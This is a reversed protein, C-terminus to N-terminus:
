NQVNGRADERFFNEFSKVVYSPVDKIEAGQKKLYAELSMLKGMTATYNAKTLFKSLEQAKSRQLKFHSVLMDAFYDRQGTEDYSNESQVLKPSKYILFKISDPEGTHRTGNYIKEYEFYCNCYGLQALEKLEDHAPQLVRQIVHRFAKYKKDINLIQRFYETSFTVTGKDLWASILLFIRQTYKNRTNYVTDKGLLHYGLEVSIFAKAIDEDMHINVYPNHVDEPIYVDCLNTVRKYKRGESSKYPIQVPITALATLANRLEPYHNKNVAFDKFYLNLSVGHDNQIDGEQIHSLKTIDTIKRSILNHLVDQLKELMFTVVKNQMASYDQSMYTFALPTIIFTQENVPLANAILERQKKTLKKPAKGRARATPKKAKTKKTKAEEMTLFNEEAGDGDLPAEEAVATLTSGGAAATFAFGAASVGNDASVGRSAIETFEDGFVLENNDDM